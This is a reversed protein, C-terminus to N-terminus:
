LKAIALLLLLLQYKETKEDYIGMSRCLTFYGVPFLDVLNMFNCIEREREKGRERV